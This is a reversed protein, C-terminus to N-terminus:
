PGDCQAALRANQHSRQWFFDCNKKASVPRVVLLFPVCFVGLVPTIEIPWWLLAAEVRRGARPHRSHRCWQRRLRCSRYSYRRHLCRYGVSAVRRGRLLRLLLSGFFTWLLWRLISGLGHVRGRYSLYSSVSSASASTIPSGRHSREHYSSPTLFAPSYIGSAM